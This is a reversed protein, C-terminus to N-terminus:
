AVRNVVLGFYTLIASMIDCAQIASMLMVVLILGRAAAVATSGAGFPGLKAPVKNLQQEEGIAIEDAVRVLHQLSEAETARMMANQMEDIAIRAHLNGIQEVNELDGLLREAANELLEDVFAIDHLFLAGVIAPLPEEGHARGALSQRHLEGTQLGLADRAHEGSKARVGALRHPTKEGAHDVGLIAVANQAQNRMGIAPAKRPPSPAEHDPSAQLSRGVVRRMQENDIVVAADTRQQRAKQETLAVTNRGGLSRELRSGLEFAEFEIEQDEVDHHRALVAEIEGAGNAGARRTGIRISVARSSFSLRIM